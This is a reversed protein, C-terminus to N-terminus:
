VVLISLSFDTAVQLGDMTYLYISGDLAPIIPKQSSTLVPGGTDISWQTEGTVKDVGM